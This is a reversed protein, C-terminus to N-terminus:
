ETLGPFFFEKSLYTMVVYCITLAMAAFLRINFSERFIHAIVALNWSVMILLLMSVSAPVQAPDEIGQLQYLFPLPVLQFLSGVGAMATISQVFRSSLAFAKLSGYVFLLMVLMDIIMAVIAQSLGVSIALGPLGSLFYALLSLKMVIISYPLDQPGKQLVLNGM